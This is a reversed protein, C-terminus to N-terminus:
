GAEVAGGVEDFTKPIFIALRRARDQWPSTQLGTFTYPRFEKLSRVNKFIQTAEAEDKAQTLRDQEKPQDWPHKEDVLFAFVPKGAELATEVEIWTMSKHGDGGAEKSPVWGYRHALLVCLADSKRVEEQCVAVPTSPQAGFFEMAVPLDGMKHIADRVKERHAKLDIATSSLFVKYLLNPFPTM